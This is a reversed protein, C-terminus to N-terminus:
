SMVRAYRKLLQGFCFLAKDVARNDKGSRQCLDNFFGQYSEVLALYTELDFARYLEKAPVQLRTLYTYARLVHQDLIPFQKPRAIHFLFAKWVFGTKVFSSVAKHYTAIDIRGLRFSNIRELHDVINKMVEEKRRSLKGQNKWELLCTIDERELREGSIHDQYVSDPVRTVYFQAWFSVFDNESCKATRLVCLRM